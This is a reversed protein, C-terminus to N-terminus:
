SLRAGTQGPSRSAPKQAIQSASVRLFHDCFSVAFCFSFSEMEAPFRQRLTRVICSWEVHKDLERIQEDTLPCKSELKFRGSLTWNLYRIQPDWNKGNKLLWGAFRLDNLEEFLNVQILKSTKFHTMISLM